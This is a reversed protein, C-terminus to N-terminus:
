IRETTQKLKTLGEVLVNKIQSTPEKTYKSDATGICKIRIERLEQQLARYSQGITYVIWGVILLLAIVSLNM